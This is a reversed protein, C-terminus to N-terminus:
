AYWRPTGNSGGSPFRALLKGHSLRYILVNLASVVRLARKNMPSGAGTEPADHRRLTTEDM